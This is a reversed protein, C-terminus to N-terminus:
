WNLLGDFLVVKGFTGYAFPVYHYPFEKNERQRTQRTVGSYDLIEIHNTKITENM